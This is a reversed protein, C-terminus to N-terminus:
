PKPAKENNLFTAIISIKVEKKALFDFKSLRICCKKHKPNKNEKEM